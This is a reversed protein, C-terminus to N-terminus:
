QAKTAPEKPWWRVVMHQGPFHVGSLTYHNEFEAKTWDGYTGFRAQHYFEEDNIFGNDHGALPRRVVFTRWHAVAGLQGFRLQRVM